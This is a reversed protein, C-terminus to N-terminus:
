HRPEARIAKRNKEAATEEDGSGFEPISMPERESSASGDWFM